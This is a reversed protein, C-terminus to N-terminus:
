ELWEVDDREGGKERESLLKAIFQLLEADPLRKLIALAVNNRAPQEAVKIMQSLLEGVEDQTLYVTQYHEDPRNVTIRFFVDNRQSWDNRSPRGEVEGEVPRHSRENWLSDKLWQNTVFGM